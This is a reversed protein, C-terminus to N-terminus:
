TKFLGLRQLGKGKGKRVVLGRLEVFPAVSATGSWIRQLLFASPLFSLPSLGAGCEIEEGPYGSFGNLWDFLCFM